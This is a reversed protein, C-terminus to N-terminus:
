SCPSSNLNPSSRVSRTRTSASVALCHTSVAISSASFAPTGQDPASTRKPSPAAQRAPMPVPRHCQPAPSPHSGSPDWGEGRPGRPKCDKADPTRTLQGGVPALFVAQRVAGGSCARGMSDTRIDPRLAGLPVRPVGQGRPCCRPLTGAPIRCSWRHCHSFHGSGPPAM